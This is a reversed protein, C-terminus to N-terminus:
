LISGEPSDETARGPRCAWADGTRDVKDFENKADPNGLKVASLKARIKKNLLGGEDCEIVDGDVTTAQGTMILEAFGRYIDDIDEGFNPVDEVGVFDEHGEDFQRQIEDLGLQQLSYLINSASRGNMPWWGSHRWGNYMPQKHGYIEFGLKLGYTHKGTAPNPIRSKSYEGSTILLDCEGAPITMSKVVEDFGPRPLRESM